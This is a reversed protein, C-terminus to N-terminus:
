NNVLILNLQQLNEDDLEIIEWNTNKLKWSLLCKKVVNPANIFKQGWYIYITKKM